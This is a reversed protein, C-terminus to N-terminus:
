GELLSMGIKFLMHSEGSCETAGEKCAVGHGAEEQRNGSWSSLERCKACRVLDVFSSGSSNPVFFGWSVLWPLRQGPKNEKKEEPM